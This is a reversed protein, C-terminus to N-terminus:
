GGIGAYSNKSSDEWSHAKTGGEIGYEEKKGLFFIPLISGKVGSWEEEV